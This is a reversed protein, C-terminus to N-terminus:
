LNKIIKLLDAPTEAFFDPNHAKLSQPTNYGWGVSIIRVGAIRCAEIDRIEDGIYIVEEVRLKEKKLANTIVHSKGFISTNSYIFDVIVKEKKLFKEVVTKSNSTIIGLKAQKRLKPIETKVSPFLSTKEYKKEIIPILKKMYFPLKYFSIRERTLQSVSKTRLEPTLIIEEHGYSRMLENISEVITPITDALTGDFDFIIANIM